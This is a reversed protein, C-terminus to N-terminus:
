SSPYYVRITALSFPRCLVVIGKRKWVDRCLVTFDRANELELLSNHHNVYWWFLSTEHSSDGWSETMDYLFIYSFRSTVFESASTFRTENSAVIFRCNKTFKEFYMLNLSQSFTFDNYIITTTSRKIEDMLLVGMETLCKEDGIKTSFSSYPWSPQWESGQLYFGDWVKTCYQSVIMTVGAVWQHHYAFLIGNLENCFKLVSHHNGFVCGDYQSQLLKWIFRANSGIADSGDKNYIYINDHPSISCLKFEKLEKNMNSDFDVFLM